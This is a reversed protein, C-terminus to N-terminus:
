QCAVPNASLIRGDPATLLIGDYSNEFLSRYIGEDDAFDQHFAKGNNTLRKSRPNKNLIVMTDNYKKTM